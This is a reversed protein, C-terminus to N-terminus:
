VFVLYEPRAAEVQNIFESRMQQAFPGGEMMNYTYIYGSVSRRRSYFYIQPESGIVAIRDGPKTHEKIYHAIQVTEVFAEGSYMRRCAEDPSMVFFFKWQGAIVVLLAAAVYWGVMAPLGSGPQTELVLRRLSGAGVGLALAFAPLLM